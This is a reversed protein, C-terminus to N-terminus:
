QGDSVAEETIVNMGNETIIPTGDEALFPVGGPIPSFKRLADAVKLRRGVQVGVIFSEYDFPM